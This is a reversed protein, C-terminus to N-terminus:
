QVGRESQWTEPLPAVRVERDSIKEALVDGPNESNRVPRWSGDPNRAMLTGPLIPKEPWTPEIDAAPRRLLQFGSAAGWRPGESFYSLIAIAVSCPDHRPLMAIAYSIKRYREDGREELWDHLMPLVELQPPDSALDLLMQRFEPETHWHM